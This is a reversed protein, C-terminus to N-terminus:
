LLEAATEMDMVFHSWLRLKPSEFLPKVADSRTKGCAGCPGAVVVVHKDGSMAMKSLESLELLTVARIETGETIPGTASYPRYQM